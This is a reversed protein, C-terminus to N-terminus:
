KLDSFSFPQSSLLNSKLTHLQQHLLHTQLHAKTLSLTLSSCSPCSPCSPYSNHIEQPLPSPTPPKPILENTHPKTQIITTKSDDKDVQNDKLISSVRDRYLKFVPFREDLKKHLTELMGFVEFGYFDVWTVEGGGLFKRGELWGAL